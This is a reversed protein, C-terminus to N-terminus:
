SGPAVAQLSSWPFKALINNGDPCKGAFLTTYPNPSGYPTPDEGYFTVAGAQDRVIMGYRQAAQAMILGVHSLGLKTVDVSPSIRFETGEPIANPGNYNGDARQAPFVFSGAMAQPIALALAHNIQGAQLESIRMLGGLLPLSTGTAGYPAPFYGPNTSVGTMAGGWRAQWGTTKNSMQWFEWMSDTSPQWVVLHADGGRAPVANAPLPVAAFGTQLTPSFVTLTVYVLPQTVPVTYVPTSYQNTNIWSGYTTVQRQLETVLAASDPSLPATAATPTNWVSTSAFPPADAAAFQPAIFATMAIAVTALVAVLRPGMPRFNPTM